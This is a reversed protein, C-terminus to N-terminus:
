IQRGNIETPAGQNQQQIRECTVKEWIYCVGEKHFAPCVCKEMGLTIAASFLPLSMKLQSVRGRWSLYFEVSQQLRTEKPPVESRLFLQLVTFHSFLGSTASLLKAGWSLKAKETMVVSFSLSLNIGTFHFLGNILWQNRQYYPLTSICKISQNFLIQRDINIDIDICVCVYMTFM